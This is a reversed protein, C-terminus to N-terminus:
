RALGRDTLWAALNAVDADSWHWGRTLQLGAAHLVENAERRALHWAWDELGFARSPTFQTNERGTDFAYKIRTHEYRAGNHLPCCTLYKRGRALVYVLRDRAYRSEGPVFLTDGPQASKLTLATPTLDVDMVIEPVPLPVAHDDLDLPDDVPYLKEVIKAVIPDDM